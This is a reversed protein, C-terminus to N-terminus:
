KIGYLSFQTGAGWNSYGNYLAITTVATSSAYMCSFMKLFGQNTTGSNQDTGFFARMTKNKTSTYDLLDIVGTMYTGSPLGGSYENSERLLYGYPQNAYGVTTQSTSGGGAKLAIQSYSTGSSVGNLIWSFDNTSGVSCIFFRVQLHTYTQPINSFTVGTTSGVAVSTGLSDMSGVASKGDWISTFKPFASQISSSTLRSVSM